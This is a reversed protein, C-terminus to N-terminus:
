ILAPTVEGEGKNLLTKSKNRKISSLDLSKLTKWLEKSKKSNQVLKEYLYSSKKRHLMMHLFIKAIEFNDKDMRLRVKQVKFTTQRKKTNSFSIKVNGTGIGSSSFFNVYIKIKM